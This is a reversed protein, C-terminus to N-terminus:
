RAVNGAPAADEPLVVSVTGPALETPTGDVTVEINASAGVSLWIRNARLRVSEGLALVREDLVRGSDSGARASFWCDGRIATLVVVTAKPARPRTATSTTVPATTVPESTTTPQRGVPALPAGSSDSAPDVPIVGSLILALVVLLVASAGALMWFLVDSLKPRSVDRVPM